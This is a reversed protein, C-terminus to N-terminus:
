FNFIPRHHQLLSGVIGHLGPAVPRVLEVIIGYFHFCGDAHNESQAVSGGFPFQNMPPLYLTLLHLIVQQREREKGDVRHRVRQQAPRAIRPRRIRRGDSEDPADGPGAFSM